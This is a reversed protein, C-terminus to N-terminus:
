EPVIETKCTGEVDVDFRSGRSSKALGGGGHAGAEFVDRGPKEAVSQNEALLRTSLRGSASLSTGSPMM